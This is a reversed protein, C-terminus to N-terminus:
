ETGAGTNLRCTMLSFRGRLEFGLKDYLAQAAANHRDVELHLARIGLAVARAKAAELVRTGIGRGRHAARIFLEDIFADRGQMEISYGWTLAIYGIWKGQEDIAWVAGLRDDVLLPAVAARRAAASM